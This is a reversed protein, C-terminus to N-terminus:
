QLNKIKIAICSMDDKITNKNERYIKQLIEYVIKHPLECKLTEIYKILAAEDIYDNVGDSVLVILDDDILQFEEKTILDNIGFPLNNNYIPIIKDGRSIYTTSSGLKYLNLVGNILNINVLDLTAYSDSLDRTRFFNNLIQLSTDFSINCNTINDVMKLTEQSLQYAYYGSGMGDSLACLFNVDYINKILINDGSIQCNNLSLSAQDYIIKYSRKPYIYVYGNRLEITTKRLEFYRKAIEEIELLEKPLSSYIKFEFNEEDTIKYEFNYFNINSDILVKKFNSLQLIEPTVKEFTSVFYSQISSCIGIIKIDDLNNSFYLDYKTQLQNAREIMSFYNRCVFDKTFNETGTKTLLDKLYIYTKVKKNSYCASRDKCTICHSEILIKIAESLRKEYDSNYTIKSFLNLFNCFETVNNNINELTYELEVNSTKKTKIYKFFYCLYALIQVIIYTFGNVYFM